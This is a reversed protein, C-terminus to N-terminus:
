GASCACSACGAASGSISAEDHSKGAHCVLKASPSGGALEFAHVCSIGLLVPLLVVALTVPDPAPADVDPDPPPPTAVPLPGHAPDPSHRPRRRTSAQRAPSSRRQPRCRPYRMAARSQPRQTGPTSHGSGTRGARGTRLAKRVAREVQNRRLKQMGHNREVPRSHELAGCARDARTSQQQDDVVSPGWRPHRFEVM